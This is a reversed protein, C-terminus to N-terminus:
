LLATLVFLLADWVIYAAVLLLALVVLVATRWRRRPREDGGALVDASM